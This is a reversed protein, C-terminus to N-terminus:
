YVLDGPKIGYGRSFEPISMMRKGSPQIFQFGLTGDGTAIELLDGVALVTGPAVNESSTQTIVPTPRPILRVEQGNPRKWLFFTRPWPEWARIQCRIESATRNWHIVADEKRIKPARCAINADQKLASGLVHEAGLAFKEVADLVPQAGMCALRAELEVTTEEDGIMTTVQSLMPGADVTPTIHILTIGTILDGHYIAWHVPAAGRYKPLLSGHLNIGGYKACSIVEPSLIQGYDCVFFLDADLSRLLNLAEPTNINQFSYVPTGYEHALEVVEPMQQPRGSRTPKVPQTVLALIEHQSTYLARCAPVGFPGTEMLVLKM